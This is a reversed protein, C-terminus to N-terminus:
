RWISSAWALLRVWDSWEHGSSADKTGGNTLTMLLFLHSQFVAESPEAIYEFVGIEIETVVQLIVPDYPNM